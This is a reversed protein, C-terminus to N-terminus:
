LNPDQNKQKSAPCEKTHGRLYEWLIVCYEGVIKNHSCSIMATFYRTAQRCITSALIPTSVIIGVM